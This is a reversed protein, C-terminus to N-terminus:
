KSLWVGTEDIVHLNFKLGREKEFESVARRCGEWYGYDDIQIKGDPVVQDFLNTLIDRTSSYWDGDMHLFAIKGIEQRHVPLTDSFLGKVPQVINEVKLKRCVELLSAEAAACTGRGWGTKEAQQGAHLDYASSEPMGAFTDFSFLRRPQDSYRSIVTALLASSGGAAVGCEAFNGPIRKQCVEKTLSFLSWLRAESLM